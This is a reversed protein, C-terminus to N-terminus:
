QRERDHGGGSGCNLKCYNVLLRCAIYICRLMMARESSWQKLLILCFMICTNNFFVGSYVVCSIHTYYLVAKIGM